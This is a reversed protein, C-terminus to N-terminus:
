TRNLDPINLGYQAMRGRDYKVVLQPMGVVQEVKLDPSRRPHGRDAARSRM